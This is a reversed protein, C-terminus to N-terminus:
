VKFGAFNWESGLSVILNLDTQQLSQQCFAIASWFSIFSSLKHFQYECTTPTPNQLLQQMGATNVYKFFSSLTPNTKLVNYIDGEPPVMVADM